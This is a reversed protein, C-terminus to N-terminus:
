RVPDRLRPQRLPEDSFEFPDACYFRGGMKYCYIVHGNEDDPDKPAIRAAEEDQGYRIQRQPHRLGPPGLTRFVM